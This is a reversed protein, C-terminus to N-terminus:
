SLSRGEQICLRPAAKTVGEGAGHAPPQPGMAAPRPTRRPFSNGVPCISLKALIERHAPARLLSRRPAEYEPMIVAARNNYWSIACGAGTRRAFAGGSCYVVINLM